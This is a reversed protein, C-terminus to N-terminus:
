ILKYYRLADKIYEVREQSVAESRSERKKPKNYNEGMDLGCMRKVQEIYSTHMNVGYKDKVYDKIKQYAAKEEPTYNSEEDLEM